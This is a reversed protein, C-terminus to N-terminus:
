RHQLMKEAQVRCIMDAVLAGIVTKLNICLFFPFGKEQKRNEAPSIAAAASFSINCSHLRHCRGPQVSLGAACLCICSSVFVFVFAFFTCIRISCGLTHTCYASYIYLMKDEVSRQFGDKAVLVNCVNINEMTQSLGSLHKQLVKM